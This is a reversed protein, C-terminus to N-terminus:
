RFQWRRCMTEVCAKWRSGPEAGPQAAQFRKGPVVDPVPIAPGTDPGDPGVGAGVGADVGKAACDVHSWPPSEAAPLANLSATRSSPPGAGNVGPLGRPSAVASSPLSEDRISEDELQWRQWQRIRWEALAIMLLSCVVHFVALLFIWLHIQVRAPTAHRRAGVHLSPSRPELHGPRVCGDPDQM